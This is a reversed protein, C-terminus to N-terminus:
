HSKSLLKIIENEYIIQIGLEKAKKQKNGPKEGCILFETKKSVTNSVRYGLKTIDQIIEDRSLNLFKGTIVVIKNNNTDTPYNIVIGSNLLNTINRKNYPDKLFTIINDAVIPGIDKVQILSDKNCNMFDNISKFIFSISKASAEGVEKIGLAYIFKDFTISKSKEIADIYNDISKDGVRDLKEFDSKNLNYLDASRHIIKKFVLERITQNGIGIINMAKRSIFHIITQEIQPTCEKSNLCKLAVQGEQQLLQSNCSPCNKPIIIKKVNKRKKLEVRDIDPIVDGARKVYVYDNIHIDKSKIESFNHLTARSVSVGGINVKDLEAVPTITGTRGVQFTVDNIRTLAELAKFKYAIAWKPAKSTFGLSKYKTLNNVRYVLGDIEYPLTDRTKNMENFYNISSGLDKLVRYYKNIPFGLNKLYKILTDHKNIQIFKEYDSIGHIFLKLNRMSAILPDLQRISGAALNRPNSYQKEGKIDLENNITEFDKKDIFVEGKLTFKNPLRKDKLLLPLSKITKVNQTVDEGTYGDGRTVAKDFKGDIYTISIALGDFKPEAFLEINSLSLVKTTRVYYDEFESEDAANSLSLMPIDHKVKEFYNLLTSGVRQSPSNITIIKPSNNEITKLEKYLDDYESDSIKPSDYTHYLLNHKNIISILKQYRIKITKEDTM